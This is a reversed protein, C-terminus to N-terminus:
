VGITGVEALEPSHTGLQSALDSRWRETPSALRATHTTGLVTGPWPTTLRAGFGHPRRAPPRGTAAPQALGSRHTLLGETGRILTSCVSAAEGLCGATMAGDRMM